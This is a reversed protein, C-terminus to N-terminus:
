FALRLMSFNEITQLNTCTKNMHPNIQRLLDKISFKQGINDESITVLYSSQKSSAMSRYSRHLHMRCLNQQVDHASDHWVSLHCAQNMQWTYQKSFIQLPSMITKSGVFIQSQTKKTPNLEHVLMWQDLPTFHLQIYASEIWMVKAWM